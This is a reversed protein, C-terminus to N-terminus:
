HGGPLPSGAFFFFWVTFAVMATVVSLVVIADLATVRRATEASDPGSDRLSRLWVARRRASKRGVARDYAANLWQLLRLLVFEVVALTAIVAGLPPATLQGAAAEIRSGAWLAIVPAGVWLNVSCLTALALLALRKATHVPGRREPAPPGWAGLPKQPPASVRGIM